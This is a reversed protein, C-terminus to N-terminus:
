FSRTIYGQYPASTAYVRNPVQFDVGRGAGPWGHHFFWSRGNMVENTLTLSDKPISPNLSGSFGMEGNDHLFFSGAWVPSTQLQDGYDHSFRELEGTVFRVFDGIRPGHIQERAVMIRDLISQDIEDFVHEAM